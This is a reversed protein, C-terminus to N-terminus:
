GNWTIGGDPSVLVGTKTAAYLAAPSAILNLTSIALPLDALKTWTDGSDSTKYVATSTSPSNFGGKSVGAYVVDPNTPDCALAIAGIPSNPLLTWTTGGDTTRYVPPTSPIGGLDVGAFLTSPRAANSVLVIVDRLGPLYNRQWTLGGDRSKLVGESGGSYIVAPDTPDVIVSYVYYPSGSNLANWTKGADTSKFVGSTTGAFLVGPQKPSGAVAFVPPPITPSVWTTGNNTSVRLPVGGIRPQVGNKVPFDASTTAGVIYVNGDTDVAVAPGLDTGTGGVIKEYVLAPRVVADAADSNFAGLVALMGALHKM